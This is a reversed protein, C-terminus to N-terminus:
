SGGKLYGLNKLDQNRFQDRIERAKQFDLTLLNKIENFNESLTKSIDSSSLYRSGLKLLISFVESLEFLVEPHELTALYISIESRDRIFQILLSDNRLEILADGDTGSNLSHVIRFDLQGYLFTFYDLIYKLLTNM